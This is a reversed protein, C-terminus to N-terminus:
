GPDMDLVAGKERNNYFFTKKNIRLKPLQGNKDLTKQAFFNRNPLTMTTNGFPIREISCKKRNFKTRGFL